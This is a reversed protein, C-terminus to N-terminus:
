GDSERCGTIQRAENLLSRQELLRYPFKSVQWKPLDSLKKGADLYCDYHAYHRTGYKVLDLSGVEHCFRCTNYAYSMAVEKSGSSTVILSRDAAAALLSM